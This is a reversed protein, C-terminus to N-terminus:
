IRTKFAIVTELNINILKSKYDWEKPPIIESYILLIAVTNGNKNIKEPDHLWRQSCIIGKSALWM